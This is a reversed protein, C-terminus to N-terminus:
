HLKNMRQMDKIQRKQDEMFQKQQQQQSQQSSQQSKYDKLQQRYDDMAQKRKDDIKQPSFDGYDAKIGIINRHRQQLYSMSMGLGWIFVFSCIFLIILGKM